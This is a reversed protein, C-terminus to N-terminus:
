IRIGEAVYTWSGSESDDGPTATSLEHTMGTFPYPNSPLANPEHAAPGYFAFFDMATDRMSSSSTPHPLEEVSAHRERRYRIFDNHAEATQTLIRHMQSIKEDGQMEAICLQRLHACTATLSNLQHEMSQKQEDCVLNRLNANHITDELMKMGAEQRKITRRSENMSDKMHDNERKFADLLEATQKMKLLQARKREGYRWKGWNLQCSSCWRNDAEVSGTEWDEYIDFHSSHKSLKCGACPIDNGALMNRDEEELTETDVWWGGGSDGDM